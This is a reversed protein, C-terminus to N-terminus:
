NEDNLSSIGAVHAVEREGRFRWCRRNARDRAEISSDRKPTELAYPASSHARVPSFVEKRDRGVYVWVGGVIVTSEPPSNV